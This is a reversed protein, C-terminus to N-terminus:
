TTNVSNLDVCLTSSRMPRLRGDGTLDWTSRDSRDGWGTLGTPPLFDRLGPVELEPPVGDSSLSKPNGQPGCAV